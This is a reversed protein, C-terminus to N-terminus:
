GCRKKEWCRDCTSRTARRIRGGKPGTFSGFNKGCGSCQARNLFKPPHGTTYGPLDIPYIVQVKWGERQYYEIKQSLRHRYAKGQQPHRAFGAYEVITDGQLVWDAIYKGIPVQFRHDIGQVHWFLDITAEEQNAPEDETTLCLLDVRPIGRKKREAGVATKSVGFLRSITSDPVSGVLNRDWTPWQTYGPIGRRNRAQKVTNEQVGLQMALHIDTMQGLDQCDWDIGTPTSLRPVGANIRHRQITARSVGLEQARQADSKPDSDFVQDWNSVPSLSFTQIGLRQRARTVTSSNVGCARAIESDPMQGLPQVSWDVKPRVPEVAAKATRDM